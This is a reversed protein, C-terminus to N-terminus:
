ANCTFQPRIYAGMDFARPPTEAIRLKPTAHVIFVLREYINHIESANSRSIQFNFKFM